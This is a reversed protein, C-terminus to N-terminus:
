LEYEMMMMLEACAAAKDVSDNIITVSQRVRDTIEKQIAVEQEMSHSIHYALNVSDMIKEFLSSLSDLLISMHKESPNDTTEMFPECASQMKSLIENGEKILNLTKDSNNLVEFANTEVKLQTEELQDMMNHIVCMCEQTNGLEKLKDQFHEIM